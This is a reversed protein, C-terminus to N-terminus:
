LAAGRRAPVAAVPVILQRTHTGGRGWAEKKEVTAVDVGRVEDEEPHLYHM